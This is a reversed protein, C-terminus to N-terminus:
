ENIDAGKQLLEEPLHGNQFLYDLEEPEIGFMGAVIDMSEDGRWYKEADDFRILTKERLKEDPILILKERVMSKTINRDLLAIWFDAKTLTLRNLITRQEIRQKEEFDPDYIPKGDLLIENNELAYLAEDTEEIKLALNHNYKVIFDNRQQQTYPKELKYSM